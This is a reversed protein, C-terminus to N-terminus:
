KICRIFIVNRGSGAVGQVSELIDLEFYQFKIGDMDIVKTSEDSIWTIVASMPTWIERDMSHRYQVKLFTGNGADERPVYEVRQIEHIDNLDFSLSITEYQEQAWQWVYEFDTHWFTNDFKTLNSVELQFECPLSCSVTVDKVANRYPEEKTAVEIFDSWKSMGADSVSRIRFVHNSEYGFDKFTFKEGKINSFIADGDREIEYYSANDPEWRLTISTGAIDQDTPPLLKPAEKSDDITANSGFVDGKNSFEEIIVKIESDTVDVKEIKICLCKQHLEDTGFVELFPNVIFKEDFYYVNDSDEFEEKTIVKEIEINNGNVFAKINEVDQSAMIELVTSREKVINEYSGTTRKISIIVNGSQNSPPGSINIITEAYEQELYESSKGDDEYVTFMSTGNPYALFIRCDRDIQSPNNNANNLPIIAGDLIYVPIKWLPTKINNYIKGGQYRDGTLLDIWVQGSDPLYVGNRVPINEYNPKTYYFENWSWYFSSSNCYVPKCDVDANSYVPAVLLNPGWMFQYQSDKTYSSSEIPFELFMARIMPLGQISEHSITYNYPLLMAKLKLSAQNLKICELSNFGFPVKEIRGWGDLNLQLPTFIKWQFERINVEIDGGGFMGDMVSGVVPIGSLGAGILTPIQFRIYEWMGGTQQGSWIGAYRQIGAWGDSTIIFPRVKNQSTDVLDKAVSEVANIGIFQCEEDCKYAVIGIDTEKGIDREGKEPNGPIKPESCRDVWLAVEIGNENAFDVFNKLNQLDGDFSDTQGYGSENNPIVWGLPMDQSKYWDILFRASFEYKTKEGNLCGLIGKEGHMTPVLRPEYYMDDSCHMVRYVHRGSSYWYVSNFNNIHAEYFAYEPMLIPSGTLEYYDNLIYEPLSNIFYFADFHEEEHCTEIIQKDTLSFDYSGSQWTNRLVGYGKTSWYFPNPCPGCGDIWNNTDCEILIRTGKHTFMGNQMGGGFYFEDHCQHLTQKSRLDSYHIAEREKLVECDTRKDHVAFTGNLKNFLIKLKNTHIVYNEENQEFVSNDFADTDYDKVSKINIKITDTDNIPTPYDLFHGTPSMYYRFVHNNLLTLEAYEGTEYRISYNTELKEFSAISGLKKVVQDMKKSARRYDSFFFM